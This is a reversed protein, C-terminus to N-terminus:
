KVSFGSSLGFSGWYASPYWLASGYWYPYGFWYSYPNAYGYNYNSGYAVQGNPLIYGNSRAFDQAAQNLEQKAQPNNALEKKYAAMQAQNQVALSDHLSALQSTFGDKDALYQQGLKTTLDLNDTLLALVDPYQALKRFADQTSNDLNQIAKDFSEQAQSNLKDAEILDDKHHRYLRWAATELNEDNNPLLKKIDDRSQGSPLTALTHALEPFRTLEYFWGQKKQSFDSILGQFSAQTQNKEQQLQSLTQPYLSALLIAQRVDANYSAVSNQMGKDTELQNAQSFANINISLIIAMLLSTPLIWRLQAIRRTATGGFIMNTKM